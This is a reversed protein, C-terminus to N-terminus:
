SSHATAPWAQDMESGSRGRRLCRKSRPQVDRRMGGAEREHARAARATGLPASVPAIARGPAPRAGPPAAAVGPAKFEYLLNNSLRPHSGQTPMDLPGTAQLKM